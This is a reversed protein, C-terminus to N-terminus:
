TLHNFYLPSRTICIGSRESEPLLRLLSAIFASRQDPPLSLVGSLLSEQTPTSSKSVHGDAPDILMTSDSDSLSRMEESGGSYGEDVKMEEQAM